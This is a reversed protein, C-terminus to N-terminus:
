SYTMWSCTYCGPHLYQIYSRICRILQWEKWIWITISSTCSLIKYPMRHQAWPSTNLTTTPFPMTARRKGVGTQINIISSVHFRCLRKKSTIATYTKLEKTHKTRSICIREGLLWLFLFFFFFLLFALTECLCVFLRQENSEQVYKSANAQIYRILMVIIM